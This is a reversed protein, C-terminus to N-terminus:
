PALGVTVAIAHGRVNERFCNFPAEESGPGGRLFAMLRPGDKEPPRTFGVLVSFLIPRATEQSKRPKVRKGASRRHCLM